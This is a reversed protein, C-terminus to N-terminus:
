DRYSDGSALNVPKAEAFTPRQAANVMPPAIMRNSIALSCPIMLTSQFLSFWFASLIVSLTCSATVPSPGFHISLTIRDGDEANFLMREASRLVCDECEVRNVTVHFLIGRYESM